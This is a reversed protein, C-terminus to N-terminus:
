AEMDLISLLEADPLAVRAGQLLGTDQRIRAIAEADLPAPCPLAAAGEEADSGLELPAAEELVCPLRVGTKKSSCLRSSRRSPLLEGKIKRRRGVRPRPADLPPIAGMVSPPLMSLVKALFTTAGDVELTGFKAALLDAHKGREGRDGHDGGSAPLLTAVADPLQVGPGFLVESDLVGPDSPLEMVDMLQDSHLQEDLAPWAMSVPTSWGQAADIEIAV